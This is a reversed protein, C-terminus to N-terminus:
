QESNRQLWERLSRTTIRLPRGKAELEGLKIKRYVTKISVRLISAVEDPRLFAKRQLLEEENVLPLREITCPIAGYETMFQTVKNEPILALTYKM